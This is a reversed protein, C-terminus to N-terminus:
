ETSNGVQAEAAVPSGAEAASDESAAVGAALVAVAGAAEGAAVWRSSSQFAVVVDEAAADGVGAQM